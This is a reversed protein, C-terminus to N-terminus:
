HPLTFHWGERLRERVVSTVADVTGSRAGGGDHALVLEGPRIAARLRTRLTPVDQTLWDEITSGIALSEMGLRAAVRETSGWKGHPARFYPIPYRQDDLADRIAAMAERLDSEVRAEPWESMDAHVMSHNALLHGDAVMRRVLRASGPKRVASGVLCFVARIGETALFDLLRDTDSGNPGDDFTLACV